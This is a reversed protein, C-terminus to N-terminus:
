FYFQSMTNCQSFNRTWPFLSKVRVPNSGMRSTIMSTRRTLWEVMGGVNSITSGRIVCVIPLSASYTPVRAGNNPQFTQFEIHEILIKKRFIPESSHLFLFVLILLSFCIRPLCNQWSKVCNQQLLKIQVYNTMGGTFIHFTVFFLESFFCQFFFWCFCLTLV